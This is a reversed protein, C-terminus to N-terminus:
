PEGIREECCVDNIINRYARNCITYGTPSGGGAPNTVWNQGVVLRTATNDTVWRTQGVGTNLTLVLVKGIEADVTWSKSADDMNSAGGGSASGSDYRVADDVCMLISDTDSASYTLKIHETCTGIFTGIEAAEGTFVIGVLQYRNNRYDLGYIDRLLANAKWYNFMAGLGSGSTSAHCTALINNLITGYASCAHIMLSPAYAIVSGAAYDNALSAVTVSVGDVIAKIQVRERMGTTNCAIQYYDLVQFGDTDDVEIVVSAGAAEANATTAYPKAVQRNPIQGFLHVVSNYRTLVLDKSGYMYLTSATNMATTNLGAAQLAGGYGTHTAADWCLWTKYTIYDGSVELELYETLHAGDEGNTSFVWKTASVKDHLTWGMAVLYTCMDAWIAAQQSAGYAKMYSRYAM